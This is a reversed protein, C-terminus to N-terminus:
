KSSDSKAEPLAQCLQQYALQVVTEMTPSWVKWGWDMAQQTTLTEGCAEMWPERLHESWQGRADMSAVIYVQACVGPELGECVNPEFLTTVQSAQFRIMMERSMPEAIEPPLYQRVVGHIRPMLKLPQPSNVLKALIQSDVERGAAHRLCDEQFPTAFQCVERAMEGILKAEDSILFACEGRLDGEPLAQCYTEVDSTNGEFSQINRQICAQPDSETACTELGQTSCALGLMSLLLSTYM